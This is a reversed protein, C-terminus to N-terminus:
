FSRLATRLLWDCGALLLRLGCLVASVVGWGRLHLPWDATWPQGQWAAAGAALAPWGVLCVVAATALLVLCHRAATGM